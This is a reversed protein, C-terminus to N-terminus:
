SPQQDKFGSLRDIEISFLMFLSNKHKNTCKTKRKQLKRMPWKSILRVNMLSSTM